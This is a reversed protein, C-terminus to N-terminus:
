IKRIKVAFANTPNIITIQDIESKKFGSKILDPIFHTFISLSSTPTVDGKKPYSNTDHSLLVQELYGSKKMSRIGQMFQENKEIRYGDFSIWAGMKAAAILSEIKTVVHAHTWIWASPSVGYDKLINLQEFAAETNDTTHVAITLGTAMHTIAGAQILKKDILSLPGSNIGLKIFGPRVGTNDIGNKWENIWRSAIRENTETHVYAPIYRGNAAGYIGTNTVLHLNSKESLVKLIGANRGFYAATCDVITECGVSKAEQLYPLVTAELEKIDYDTREEAPLGFISFLHEHTLTFNMDDTEVPGRVTMIFSKPEESGNMKRGVCALLTVPMVFQMFSRRTISM